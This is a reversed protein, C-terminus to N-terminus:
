SRYRTKVPITNFFEQVEGLAPEVLIPTIGLNIKM